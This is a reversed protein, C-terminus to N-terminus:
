GEERLKAQEELHRRRAVERAEDSVESHLPEMAADFAFPFLMVVSGGSSRTLRLAWRAFAVGTAYSHGYPPNSVITLARGLATGRQVIEMVAPNNHDLFDIGTQPRNGFEQRDAYASLDSGACEHGQQYFPALMHGAGCAPDWILSGDVPQWNLLLTQPVWEPTFYAEQPMRQYNSVHGAIM